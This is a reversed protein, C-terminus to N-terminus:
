FQSLALAEIESCYQDISWNRFCHTNFRYKLSHNKNAHTNFRYKLSQNENTQTEFRHKSSQNTNAYTDQSVSMAHSWTM